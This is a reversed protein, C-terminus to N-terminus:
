KLWSNFKEEVDKQALTEGKLEQEESEDIDALLALQDYINELQTEKTINDSIRKLYEKIREAKM